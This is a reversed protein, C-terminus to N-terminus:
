SFLSIPLRRRSLFWGASLASLVVFAGIVGLWQLSAFTEVLGGTAPGFAVGTMVAALLLPPTPVFGVALLGTCSIVGSVSLILWSPVREALITALLGAFIALTSDIALIGSAEAVSMGIRAGFDGMHTMTSVNVLYMGAIAFFGLVPFPALPKGGGTGIKAVSHLDHRGTVLAFPLAGLVGVAMLAFIGRIGFRALVLAALAYLAALALAQAMQVLGFTRAPSRTSSALVGIAGTAVGVSSGELVRLLTFAAFGPNLLISLIEVSILMVLGTVMLSRPQLSRLLRPAWFLMVLASMVLQLSGILGIVVPTVHFIGAYVPIWVANAGLIMFTM